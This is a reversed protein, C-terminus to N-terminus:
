TNASYQSKDLSELSQISSVVTSDAYNRSNLIILEKGTKLFPHGFEEFSEIRPCTKNRFGSQAAAGEEHHKNDPRVEKM